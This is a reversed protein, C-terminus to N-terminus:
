CRGEHWAVVDHWRVRTDAMARSIATTAPMAPTSSHPSTGSSGTLCVVAVMRHGCAAPGSPSIVSMVAGSTDPAGCARSTEIGHWATAVRGAAPPRTRTWWGARRCRRWGCRATRGRWRRRPRRRTGRSRRRPRAGRRRPTRRRCCAACRPWRRRLRRRSRRCGRRWPCGPRRLLLRLDGADEGVQLHGRLGPRDARISTSVRNMVEGVVSLSATITSPTAATSAEITASATSSWLRESAPRTGGPAPSSEPPDPWRVQSASTPTTPVSSSHCTM